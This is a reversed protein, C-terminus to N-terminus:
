KNDYYFGNDGGDGDRPADGPEPMIDNKRYAFLLIPLCVTILGCLVTFLMPSSTRIATFIRYLALLLVVIAILDIVSYAMSVGNMLRALQDPPVTDPLIFMYVTLYVSSVANLLTTLVMLIPLHVSYAFTKRAPRDHPLRREALRGLQMWRVVPVFAYCPHSLGATESLRRLGIGQLIYMVVYIALMVVMTGVFTAWFITQYLPDQMLEALMAEMESYDM